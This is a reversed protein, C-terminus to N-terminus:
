VQRETGVHVENDDGVAVFVALFAAYGVTAVFLSIEDSTSLWALTMGFLLVAVSSTILDKTLSRDISMIVMPAIVFVGGIISTALRRPFERVRRRREMRLQHEWEEDTADSKQTANTDRKEPQTMQIQFIIEEPNREPSVDRSTKPTKLFPSIFFARRSTMPSVPFTRSLKQTVDKLPEDATANTPYRRLSGTLDPLLSAVGTGNTSPRITEAGDYADTVPMASRAPSVSRSTQTFDKAKTFQPFNDSESGM